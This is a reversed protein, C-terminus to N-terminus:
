RQWQEDYKQCCKKYKKGSGCACSDNRGLKLSGLGDSYEPSLFFAHTPKNRVDEEIGNIHNIEHQWVQGQYGIAIIEHKEGEPTYYEIKVGAHRKALITQGKWTLCGEVRYRPFGYTEVVKPDIAIISQLTNIDKVCILRLNFRKGEYACQNAALGIGDTRQEAYAAFSTIMERNDECFKSIDTIEPTIPTQENPIVTWSM